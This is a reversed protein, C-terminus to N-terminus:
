GSESSGEGGWCIYATLAASLCEFLFDVKEKGVNSETVSNIM